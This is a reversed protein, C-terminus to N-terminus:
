PRIVAVRPAGTCITAIPIAARPPPPQPPSPQEPTVEHARKRALDAEPLRSGIARRWREARRPRGRAPHPRVGRGHNPCAPHHGACVERRGRPVPPSEAPAAGVGMRAAAWPSGLTCANEV